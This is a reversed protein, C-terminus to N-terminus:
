KIQANFLTTYKGIMEGSKDFFAWHEVERPQKKDKLWKNLLQAELSKAAAKTKPVKKAAVIMDVLAMDGYNKKLTDFITTRKGPHKTNFENMYRVWFKLVPDSLIPGTGGGAINKLGWMGFVDDPTFGKAGWEMLLQSELKASIAKTRGDKRGAELVKSMVRNGLALSLEEMRTSGQMPYRVNFKDVYKLWFSFVPNLLIDHKEFKLLHFVDYPQMGLRMWDELRQSQLKITTTQDQLAANLMTSVREDGYRFALVSAASVREAKPKKKNLEDVYKIWVKIKPNALLNGKVPTLKMKTFVDDASTRLSLWHQLQTKEVISGIIGRLKTVGPITDLNVGRRENTQDREATNDSRLIRATPSEVRVFEAKIVTSLTVITLSTAVALTAVRLFNM